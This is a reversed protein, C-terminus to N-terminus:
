KKEEKVNGVHFYNYFDDSLNLEKTHGAEKADVLSLSIFKKIHDYAKNGRIKIIVSQKVPQKYAIVALTEQEAKTFESSGTALKNVMNTYEEKVDMKWMNEKFIVEMASEKKTYSDVLKEMLQKLLIPNLDTLLILDQIGLWRGAIFLAAEIKKMGEIEKASDIEVAVSKKDEGTADLFENSKIEINELKIEEKLQTEEM